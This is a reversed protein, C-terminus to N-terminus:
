ISIGSMLFLNIRGFLQLFNFFCKKMLKSELQSLQIGGKTSILCAKLNLIISDLDDM